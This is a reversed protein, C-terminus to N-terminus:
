KNSYIKKIFSTAKKATDVIEDKTIKKKKKFKTTKTKLHGEKEKRTIHAM